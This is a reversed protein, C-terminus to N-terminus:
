PAHPPRVGMTTTRAHGFTRVRHDIRWGHSEPRFSTRSTTLTHNCVTYMPSQATACDHFRLQQNAAPATSTQMVQYVMAQHGM